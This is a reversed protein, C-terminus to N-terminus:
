ELWGMFVIREALAEIVDEVRAIERARFPRWQRGLELMAVLRGHLSLPVMAVGCVFPVCRGIRGAIHRGAEGVHHAEILTDGSRAASVAPEGTPRRGVLWVGSGS